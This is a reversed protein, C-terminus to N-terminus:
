HGAGGRGGARGEELTCYLNPRSIPPSPLTEPPLQCHLVVQRVVVGNAAPLHGGGRLETM